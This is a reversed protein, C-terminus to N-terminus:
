CLTVLKLVLHRCVSVNSLEGVTINDFGLVTMYLCALALGSLAVSYKMYTHWGRYLTLFQSFIREATCCGKSKKVVVEDKEKEHKLERKKESPSLNPDSSGEDEGVKLLGPQTQPLSVQHLAENPTEADALDKKDNMAEEEAENVTTELFTFITLIYKSYFLEVLTM